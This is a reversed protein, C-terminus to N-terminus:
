KAPEWDSVLVMVAIDNQSLHQQFSVVHNAGCIFLVPWEDLDQLQQLWHAERKRYESQIADNLRAEDWGEQHARFKVLGENLIGLRERETSDPDCARYQLGCRQCLIEGISKGGRLGETSMEEAIARIEHESCAAELLELYADADTRSGGDSIQYPHSTGIIYAENM